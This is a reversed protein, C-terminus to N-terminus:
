PEGPCNMDSGNENNKLASLTESLEVTKQDEKYNFTIIM